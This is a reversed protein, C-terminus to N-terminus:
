DHLFRGFQSTRASESKNRKEETEGESYTREEEAEGGVKCRSQVSKPVSKCRFQLPLFVKLTNERIRNTKIRGWFLSCGYKM